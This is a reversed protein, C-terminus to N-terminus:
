SQADDDSGDRLAKLILAEIEWRAARLLGALLHNTPDEPRVPDEEFYLEMTEMVSCVVLTDLAEREPSTAKSPFRWALVRAAM